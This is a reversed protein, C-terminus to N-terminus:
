PRCPNRHECPVGVMCRACEGGGQKELEEGYQICKLLNRLHEMTIAGAPCRNVCAGCMICNDYVGTYPRPSPDFEHDTIFSTLTGCCGKETIIHRHLGFTGLGCAYAAHKDSWTPCFHLDPEEGNMFPTTKMDSRPDRGPSCVKIGQNELAAVLVATVKSACRGAQPFGCEAAEVVPGPDTSLRTRVAESRPFFLTIVTHADNMWERPAMWEPGIIEPKKFENFLPDDAAAFGILPEEMVEIDANEEPLHVHNITLEEYAKKVIDIVDQNNM